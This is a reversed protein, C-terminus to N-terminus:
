NFAGKPPAPLIQLDDFRVVQARAKVERKTSIYLGGVRRYDKFMVATPRDEPNSTLQMDWEEVVGTDKNIWAWHADGPYLAGHPFTIKLVDWVHGCSDNREGLNERAVDKETMRLPMLLWFVDNVFRRGGVNVLLDNLKKSDTVAEGNLKARGKNSLVNMVIEFPRGQPDLGSVKYDGTVRDWRQPFSSVVQGEREVHFTFSFYRAQSWAASGLVDVARNAIDDASPQAAFAAASFSLVLITRLLKVMSRM